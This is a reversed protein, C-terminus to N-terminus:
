QIGHNNAARPDKWSLQGVRLLTPFIDCDILHAGNLVMRTIKMITVTMMNMMVATVMVNNKQKQKADHNACSLLRVKM